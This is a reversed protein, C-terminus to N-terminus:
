FLAGPEEQVLASLRDPTFSGRETIFETILEVPTWEFYRNWVGFADGEEAAVVEVGPRQEVLIKGHLQPSFKLSDCLVFLPVHMAKCCLALARTGTKNLLHGDASVSDAGLVAITADALAECMAADVYLTAPVGADDLDRVTRHGENMPRAELVATHALMRRAHLRRLALLVTSSRSLTVARQPESFRDAFLQAIAGGSNELIQELSALYIMAAATEEQDHLNPLFQTKLIQLVAHLSPMSLQSRELLALGESLEPLRYGMACSECLALLRHILETAGSTNDSAILEFEKLV